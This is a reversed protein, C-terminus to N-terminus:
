VNSTASDDTWCSSQPKEERFPAACYASQDIRTGNREKAREPVTCCRSSAAPREVKSSGRAIIHRARVMRSRRWGGQAGPKFEIGLDRGLQHEISDTLDDSGSEARLQSFFSWRRALTRWLIKCDGGAEREAFASLSETQSVRLKHILGAVQANNQRTARSNNGLRERSPGTGSPIFAEGNWATGCVRCIALYMAQSLSCHCFCSISFLLVLLSSAQPAQLLSGCGQEVERERCRPEAPLGPCCRRQMIMMKMGAKSGGWARGTPVVDM